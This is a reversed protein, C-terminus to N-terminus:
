QIEEEDDDTWGDEVVIVKEFPLMSFRHHLKPASETFEM